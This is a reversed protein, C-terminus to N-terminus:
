QGPQLVTFSSVQYGSLGSWSKVQKQGIYVLINFYELQVTPADM